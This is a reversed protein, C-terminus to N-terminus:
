RSGSPLSLSGMDIKVSDTIPGSQIINCRNLWFLNEGSLYLSSQVEFFRSSASVYRLAPFSEDGLSKTMRQKVVEAVEKM